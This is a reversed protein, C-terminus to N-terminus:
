ICAPKQGDSRWAHLNQLDEFRRGMTFRLSAGYQRDGVMVPAKRSVLRM